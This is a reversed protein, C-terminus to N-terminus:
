SNNRQRTSSSSGGDRIDRSKGGRAGQTSRETPHTGVEDTVAGALRLRFDRGYANESEGPGPALMLLNVAANYDRDLHGGCECHWDRIHLPKAGSNVGCACCTRTSPFGAPAYVLTRGRAEAGAALAALFQGWGADHVSKALRGGALGRINLTEVVVTQNERLLRASLTRVFDARQNAVRAYARARQRRAKEHNKSGRTARTLKKDAKRLQKQAHRLYTPNAIKERAGDSYVIVAFDTLGLDVAAVRDPRTPTTPTDPVDVLFSAWYRGAPDLIITVSKPEGPLPRQWNVEIWDDIRELKIRGGTSGTNQWGGRIKFRDAGFTASQRGRRKHFNPYGVRKGRRRGSHSAFFNQFATDADRLAADLVSRSVEALFRTGEAARQQTLRRGAAAFGPHPRGAEREDRAFAIYSNKVWRVCGYLRALQAQARQSPQIPLKIRRYAVGCVRRCSLRAPADRLTTDSGAPAEDNNVSHPDDHSGLQEALFGSLSGM